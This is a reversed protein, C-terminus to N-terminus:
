FRKITRWPDNQRWVAQQAEPQMKCAEILKQKLM